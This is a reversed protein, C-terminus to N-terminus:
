SSPVLKHMQANIDTILKKAPSERTMRLQRMTM